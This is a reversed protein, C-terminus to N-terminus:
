CNFTAALPIVLRGAKNSNNDFKIQEIFGFGLVCKEAFRYKRWRQNLKWLDETESLNALM